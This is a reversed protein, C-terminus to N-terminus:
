CFDKYIITAVNSLGGIADPCKRVLHAVMDRVANQFVFCDADGAGIFASERAVSNIM